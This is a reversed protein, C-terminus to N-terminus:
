KKKFKKLWPYIKEKPVFLETTWHSQPYALLVGDFTIKVTVWFAFSDANRILDFREGTMIEFLYPESGYSFVSDFPVYGLVIYKGDVAEPYGVTDAYAICKVKAASDLDAFSPIIVQAFVNSLFLCLVITLVFRINMKFINLKNIILSKYYVMSVVM